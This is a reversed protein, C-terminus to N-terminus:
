VNEGEYVVDLGSTHGTKQTESIMRFVGSTKIEASRVMTWADHNGVM